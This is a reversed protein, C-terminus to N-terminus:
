VIESRIMSLYSRSIRRLEERWDQLSELDAKTIYETINARAAIQNVNGGIRSLAGLVKNASEADVNVIKGRLAMHKIYTATKMHCEEARQKVEEWEENTFSM